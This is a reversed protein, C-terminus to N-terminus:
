CKWKEAMSLWLVSSSRHIDAVAERGTLPALGMALGDQYFNIVNKWKQINKPQPLIFVYSM